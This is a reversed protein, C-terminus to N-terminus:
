KNVDILKAETGSQQEICIATLYCSVEWAQMSGTQFLKKEVFFPMSPVLFSTDSFIGCHFVLDSRFFLLSVTTRHLM